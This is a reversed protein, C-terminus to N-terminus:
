GPKVKLIGLKILLGSFDYIRREHVVQHKEWEQLFVCRFHFRFEVSSGLRIRDGATLAHEDIQDGNLITGARSGCTLLTRFLM